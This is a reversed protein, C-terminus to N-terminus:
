IYAKKFFNNVPMLESIMDDLSMNATRPMWWQHKWVLVCCRSVVAFCLSSIEINGHVEM